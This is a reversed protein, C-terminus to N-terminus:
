RAVETLFIWFSSRCIAPLVTDSARTCSRKEGLFIARSMRLPRSQLLPDLLPVLDGGRERVQVLARGLCLAEVLDDLELVPLLLEDPVGRLNVDLLRPSPLALLM